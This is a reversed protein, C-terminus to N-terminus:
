GARTAPRSCHLLYNVDVDDSLAASKLLPNYRLGRVDRVELGAARAWADLESPRIFKAYDHTGRPVLKLLYEAGVIALAYSKPNRNITSFVIQGGPKALRACAAVVPEPKPVHELMELCTVLDFRNPTERALDEAAIKRYEVKQRSELLHLRAVELVDDAMDIGTVQAGRAALAEAVLGGGCGVDLVTKGKLGGAAQEIYRLRTPNIHHLAAMEGRPDWWRSALKEFRAIEGPDVNTNVPEPLPIDPKPSASSGSPPM